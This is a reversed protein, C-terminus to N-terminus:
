ITLGNKRAAEVLAKVRGHYRYSGKSFVAKSIGAKVAREALLVGVATAIDTKPKKTEKIERAGAAAVTHGKEDDILQATISRNSRFITLRPRVGTGEIRARSRHTRRMRKRRLEIQKNM